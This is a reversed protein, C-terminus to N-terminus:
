EPDLPENRAAGQITVARELWAPDLSRALFRVHADAFAFNAGRRHLGGFQACPGLYPPDDMDLGRVTAPGATTWSGSTEATEVVIVLASACEKLVLVREYGFFGARPHKAPM